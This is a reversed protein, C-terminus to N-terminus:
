KGSSVIIAFTFLFNQIYWKGYDQTIPRILVTYNLYLLSKAVENSSVHFYKLM